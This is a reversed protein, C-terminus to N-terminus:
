HLAEGKSAYRLCSHQLYTEPPPLSAPNLFALKGAQMVRCVTKGKDHTSCGLVHYVVQTFAFQYRPWPTLPIGDWRCNGVKCGGQIGQEGLMRGTQGLQEANCSAVSDFCEYEIGKGSCLTVVVLQRGQWTNSRTTFSSVHM